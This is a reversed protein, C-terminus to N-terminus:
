RLEGSPDGRLRLRLGEDALAAAIGDEQSPPRGGILEALRDTNLSLDRSRSLGDPGLSQSTPEILSPDLSFLGAVERGFDFKSLANSSGVHLVGTGTGRTLAGLISVLHQAYISTVIFDTFGRVRSDSQLANVFFELISRHGTPSWGFFNTRIILASPCEDLVALEGELKTEGYISFPSPADTERYDGRAGDFVADTSIHLLRCGVESTAIAVHRAADVNMRRALHPDDECGQHSAFAATNVVVSPSAARLASRVSPLDLLDVTDHKDFAGVPAPARSIGIRHVRGELGFGINAGLFGSAGTVLWRSGRDTM